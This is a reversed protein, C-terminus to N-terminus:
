NIVPKIDLKKLKRANAINFPPEKKFSRNKGGNLVELKTPSSSAAERMGHLVDRYLSEEFDNLASDENAALRENGTVIREAASTAADLLIAQEDRSINSLADLFRLAKEGGVGEFLTKLHLELARMNLSFEGKKQTM